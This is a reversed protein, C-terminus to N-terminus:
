TYEVVRPRNRTGALILILVAAPLAPIFRGPLFLIPPGLQPIVWILLCLFRAGFTREAASLSMFWLCAAVILMVSESPGWHPAGLITAALIAALKLDRSLRSRFALWVATAAAVACSTQLLNATETSLGFARACSWASDGWIRGAAVWLGDGTAGHLALSAWQTWADMGFVLGSLAVLFVASCAAALLARWQGAAVLAIPVFVFLQPKITAIGLIAGAMLPRAELLRFGLIILAALLLANHGGIVNNAAAPSLLVLAAIWFNTRRDPANACLAALLLLGTLVQFLLYSFYFGLGGFPLLLLLFSPPYVWPRYDMPASLVDAFTSNLFATFRRGDYIMALDHQQWAKVAGQFVMWDTGPANWNIGISGPNIFTSVFTAWAYLASLFATAWIIRTTGPVAAWLIKPRM